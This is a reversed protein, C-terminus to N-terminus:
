VAQPHLLDLLKSESLKAIIALGAVLIEQHKMMELRLLAAFGVQAATQGVRGIQSSMCIRSCLQSEPLPKKQLPQHGKM